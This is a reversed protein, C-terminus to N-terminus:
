IKSKLIGFLLWILKIKFGAGAYFSLVYAFKPGKKLHWVEHGSISKKLFRSTDRFHSGSSCVYAWKWGGSTSLSYMHLMQIKRWIGSIMDLYPFKFKETDWFSRDTPRVIAWNRGQVTFLPYMYLKQCKKLDWTWVRFYFNSFRDTDRFGSDMSRIYAWNRGQLTSLPYM